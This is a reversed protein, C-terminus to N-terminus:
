KANIRWEVERLFVFRGWHTVRDTQRKTQKNTAGGVCLLWIVGVWVGSTLL